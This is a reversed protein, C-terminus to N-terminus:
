GHISFEKVFIAALFWDGDRFHKWLYPYLIITQMVNPNYVKALRTSNDEDM